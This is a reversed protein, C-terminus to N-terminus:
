SYKKFKLTSKDKLYNNYEEKDNEVWYSEYGEVKYQYWHTKISNKM